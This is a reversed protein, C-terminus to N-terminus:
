KPAHLGPYKEAEKIYTSHCRYFNLDEKYIILLYTDLFAGTLGNRHENNELKNACCFGFCEIIRPIYERRPFFSWLFPVNFNLIRLMVVIVIVVVFFM